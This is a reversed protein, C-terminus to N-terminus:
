IHARHWNQAKQDSKIEQSMLHECSLKELYPLWPAKSPFMCHHELMLLHLKRDSVKCLKQHLKWSTNRLFRDRNLLNWRSKCSLMRQQLQSSYQRSHRRTRQRDQRDLIRCYTVKEMTMLASVFSIFKNLPCHFAYNSCQKCRWWLAIPKSCCEM